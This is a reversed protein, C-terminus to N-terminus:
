WTGSVARSWSRFLYAKERSCLLLWSKNAHDSQLTKVDSPSATQHIGECPFVTRPAHTSLSPSKFAASTCAFRAYRERCIEAVRHKTSLFQWCSALKTKWLSLIQLSPLLSTTKLANFVGCSVKKGPPSSTPCSLKPISSEPINM